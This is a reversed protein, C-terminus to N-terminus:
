NQNERYDPHWGLRVFSAAQWNKNEEAFPNEFLYQSEMLGHSVLLPGRLKTTDSRARSVSRVVAKWSPLDGDKIKTGRISMGLASPSAIKRMGTYVFIEVSRGYIRAYIKWIHEM